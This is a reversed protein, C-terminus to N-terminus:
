TERIARSSRPLPGDVREFCVDQSHGNRIIETVRLNMRRPHIRSVVRRVVERFRRPHLGYGPWTRSPSQSKQGGGISVSMRCCNIQELSM